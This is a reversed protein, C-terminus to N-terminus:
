ATSRRPVTPGLDAADTAQPTEASATARATTQSPEAVGRTPIPPRATAARRRGRRRIARGAAVAIGRPRSASRAARDGAARPARDRLVAAIARGLSDSRALRTSRATPSPVREAVPSIVTCRTSPTPGSTVAHRRMTPGAGALCPRPRPAPKRWQRRIINAHDRGNHTLIAAHVAAGERVLGLLLEPPGAPLCPGQPELRRTRCSSGPGGPFPPELPRPVVVTVAAKEHGAGGVGPPGEVSSPLSWSM